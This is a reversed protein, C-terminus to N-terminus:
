KDESIAFKRNKVYLNEDPSKGIYISGIDNRVLLSKDTNELRYSVEDSLYVTATDIAWMECPNKIDSFLKELPVQKCGMTIPLSALLFFVVLIYLTKKM